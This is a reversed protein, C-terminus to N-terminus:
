QTEGELLGLARMRAAFVDADARAKKPEVGGLRVDEGVEVGLGVLGPVEFAEYAGVHIPRALM